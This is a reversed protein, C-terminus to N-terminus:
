NQWDCVAVATSADMRRIIRSVTRYSIKFHAAIQAMTYATSYYAASIAEDRDRFKAQYEALSLALAQRHEKTVENLVAAAHSDRHRAVFVDDGLLLQHRANKIPNSADVGAAVFLRFADIAEQRHVGFLGLMWDTQLWGPPEAARTMLHYSSWPWDELTTVMRARIPNLVVYRAVERLHAEKQILIAHYRGQFVHGVRQHRRNFYQAYLANLQRMGRSLNADGTEIVLHYHNTMQCFSHVAFNFRACTSALMEMWALRDTDDLYILQQRDGRSTVHYVAGAFQLRLPRSM